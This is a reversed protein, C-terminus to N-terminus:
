RLYHKFCYTIMSCFQEYKGMNMNDYLEMTAEIYEEDNLLDEDEFEQELASFYAEKRQEQLTYSNLNLHNLMESGRSGLAYIEGNLKFGFIDKIEDELPSICEKFDFWNDKKHNCHDTFDALEGKCSAFLNSYDMQANICVAKQASPMSNEPHRPMFHEIDCDQLYQDLGIRRECYCCIFGQEEVLSRKLKLYEGNGHPGHLDDYNATNGTIAKFHNKWNTFHSPEMKKHIQRM